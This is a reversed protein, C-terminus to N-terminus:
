KEFQWNFALTSFPNFNSNEIFSTLISSKGKLDLAIAVSVDFLMDVIDGSDSSRRRRMMKGQANFRKLAKRLNGISKEIADIPAQSCDFCAVNMGAAIMALLKEEDSEVNITAIIQTSRFTKEKTPSKYKLLHDFNSITSKRM